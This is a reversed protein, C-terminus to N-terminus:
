AFRRRLRICATEILVLVGWAAASWTFWVSALCAYMAPHTLPICSLSPHIGSLFRDMWGSAPGYLASGLEPSGRFEWWHLAVREGRM